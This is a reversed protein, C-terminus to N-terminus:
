FDSCTSNVLRDSGLMMVEIFWSLRKRQAMNEEDIRMHRHGWALLNYTKYIKACEFSVGDNYIDTMAAKIPIAIKILFNITDQQLYHKFNLYREISFIDGGKQKYHLKFSLWAKKWHHILQGREVAYVVYLCKKRERSSNKFLESTWHSSSDQIFPWSVQNRNRVSVLKSNKQSL